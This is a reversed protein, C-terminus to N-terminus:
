LFLVDDQLLTMVHHRPESCIVCFVLHIESRRWVCPMLSFTVSFPTVENELAVLKVTYGHCSQRQPRENTFTRLILSFCKVSMAETQTQDNELM